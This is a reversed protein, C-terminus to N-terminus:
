PAGLLSPHTRRLRFIGGTPYFPLVAWILRPYPRMKDPLDNKTPCDARERPPSNNSDGARIAIGAWKGGDGQHRSLSM